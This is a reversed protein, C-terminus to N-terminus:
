FGDYPPLHLSRLRSRRATLLQQLLVQPNLIGISFYDSREVVYGAERLAEDVAHDSAPLSFM